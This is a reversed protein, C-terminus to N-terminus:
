GILITCYVIGKDATADVSIFSEGSSDHSGELMADTVDSRDFAVAAM